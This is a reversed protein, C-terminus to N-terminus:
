VRVAGCWGIVMTGIAVCGLTAPPSHRWESSLAPEDSSFACATLNSRGLGIDHGAARLESEVAKVIKTSLVPAPCGAHRLERLYLAALCGPSAACLREMKDHPGAVRPDTWWDLDWLIGAGDDGEADRFQTALITFFFCAAM